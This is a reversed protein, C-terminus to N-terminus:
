QLPPVDDVPIKEPPILEIKGDRWSVVTNGARKHQLLAERVAEQVAAEVKSALALCEERSPDHNSEPM